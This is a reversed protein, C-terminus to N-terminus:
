TTAPAVTLQRNVAPNRQWPTYTAALNALHARGSPRAGSAANSTRWMTAAIRRGGAKRAPCIRARDASVELSDRPLPYDAQTQAWQKRAAAQRGMPDRAATSRRTSAPKDEAPMDLSLLTVPGCNRTPLLTSCWASPTGTASEASRAAGAADTRAGRSRSLATAPQGRQARVAGIACCRPCLKYRPVTSASALQAPRRSDARGSTQRVRGAPQRGRRLAM